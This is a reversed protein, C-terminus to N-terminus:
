MCLLRSTTIPEHIEHLPLVRELLSVRAKGNSKLSLGIVGNNQCAQQEEIAWESTISTTPTGM